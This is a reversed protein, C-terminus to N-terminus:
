ILLYYGKISWYWLEFCAVLAGVYVRRTGRGSMVGVSSQM